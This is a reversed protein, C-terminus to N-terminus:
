WMGYEDFVRFFFYQRNMNVAGLLWHGVGDDYTTDREITAMPELYGRGITVLVLMGDFADVGLAGAWGV